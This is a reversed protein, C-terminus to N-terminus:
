SSQSFQVSQVSQSTPCPRGSYSFQVSQVSSVPSVSQDPLTSRRCRVAEERWLAATWREKGLRAFFFLPHDLRSNHFMSIRQAPSGVCRCTHHVGDAAASLRHVM